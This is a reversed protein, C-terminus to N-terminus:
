SGQGTRCFVDISKEECQEFVDVFDSGRLWREFRLGAPLSASYNFEADPGLRELLKICELGEERFEPLNVEFSVYPVPTRMGQLVTPEYGEV